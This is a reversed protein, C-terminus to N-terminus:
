FIESKVRVYIDNINADSDKFEELVKCDNILEKVSCLKYGLENLRKLTLYEALIRSQSANSDQELQSIIEESKNSSDTLFKHAVEYYKECDELGTFQFSKTMKELTNINEEINTETKVFQQPRAPPPQVVRRLAEIKQEIRSSKIFYKNVEEAPLKAARFRDRLSMEVQMEHNKRVQFDLDRSASKLEFGTDFLKEDLERIKKQLKSNEDKQLHVEEEHISKLHSLEKEHSKRLKSIEVEQASKLQNIEEAYKRENNIRLQDAEVSKKFLDNEIEDLKATYADHVKSLESKLKKNELEVDELLLLVKKHEQELTRFNELAWLREKERARSVVEDVEDFDDRGISDSFSVKKARPKELFSPSERLNNDDSHENSTFYNVIRSLFGSNHPSETTPKSIRYKDKSTHSALRSGLETRPRRANLSKIPSSFLRSHKDNEEKSNLGYKAELNKRLGDLEYNRSYRKFDNADDLDSRKLRTNLYDSKLRDPLLSERENVTDSYSKYKATVPEYQAKENALKDRLGSTASSFNTYRDSSYKERDLSSLQPYLSRRPPPSTRNETARRSSRYKDLLDSM